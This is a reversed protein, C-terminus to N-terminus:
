QLIKKAQDKDSDFTFASYIEFDNQRDGIKPALTRLASLKDSSFDFLGLLKVVQKVCITREAIATSLVSLKQQSFDEGMIAKRISEFDDDGICPSPPAVPTPAYTVTAPAYPTPAPPQNIQMDTQPPVGQTATGTVQIGVQGQAGGSPVTVNVQATQDAPAFGVWLQGVMGTKAEFKQDFVRGANTFLEVRLFHGPEADVAVPVTDRVLEKGNDSIRVGVDRPALVRFTTRGNPEPDYAVKFTVGDRSITREQHASATANVTAPAPVPQTGPGSVDVHVNMGNPGAGFNFTGGNDQARAGTAWLLAALVAMSRMTSTM